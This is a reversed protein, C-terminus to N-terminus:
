KKKDGHAQADLVLDAFERFAGAGGRLSCVYHVANLVIPLADSPAASLGVARLVELDNVDDGIFAIETAGFGTRELIHELTRIKDTAGEYLLEINLKEARKAVIPTRERTVIGVEIGRERLRVMGMGDRINYRKMEEGRASYYVGGNTLVGDIDTLVLRIRRARELLKTKPVTYKGRVRVM